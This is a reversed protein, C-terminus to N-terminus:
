TIKKALIIVNAQDKSLFAKVLEFGCIELFSTLQEYTYKYTFGMRILDGEKFNLCESGINIESDRLINLNKRTKCLMGIRSDVYALLFEFDFDEAAMGYQLLPYMNFLVNEKSTYTDLIFKRASQMGAGCKQAPLLSADFFFLDGQELNEHILNLIYEPDYNCFTNGLISFLVPRRWFKKLAHLDEIFGVIGKKELPLNRVKELALDIFQSGVDVPYYRIAIKGSGRAEALNKKVLEELIIKEKEGSGVGVSVFSMGTPIFKIIQGLNEELLGKLQRAVPFTESQDLKLWNKAGGIGTYLFYDPLEYNKLCNYLKEEIEKETATIIKEETGQDQGSELGKKGNL